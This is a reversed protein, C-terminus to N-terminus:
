SCMLRNSLARLSSTANYKAMVNHVPESPEQVQPIGQSSKKDPPEEGEEQVRFKGGVSKMLAVWDRDQFTEARMSYIDALRSQLETIQAVYDCHLTM